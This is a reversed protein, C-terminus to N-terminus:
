SNAKNELDFYKFFELLPKPKWRFVQEGEYSYSGLIDIRTQWARPMGKGLPVPNGRKGLTQLTSM